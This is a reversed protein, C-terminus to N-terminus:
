PRKSTRWRHQLRSGCTSRPPDSSPPRRRSPRRRFPSGMTQPSRYGTGVPIPPGRTRVPQSAQRTTPSRPALHVHRQRTPRISPVAVVRGDRVLLDDRQGSAALQLLGRQLDLRPEGSRRGRGRLRLASGAAADTGRVGGARGDRHCRQHLSPTALTGGGVGLVRDGRVRRARPRRSRETAHPSQRGCLRRPVRAVPQDDSPRGLRHSRREGHQRIGAHDQSHRRHAGGIATRDARGPAGRLLLGPRARPGGLGAHVPPRLACPKAWPGRGPCGAQARGPRGPDRIARTIGPQRPM